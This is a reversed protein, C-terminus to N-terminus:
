EKERDIVDVGKVCRFGALNDTYLNPAGGTERSTVRLRYRQSYWSGGRVVKFQKGYRRYETGLRSRNGEYPMYWSQTWERANGAMNLAGYPSAGEPDFAIVPMLGRTAIGFRIKLHAGTKDDAWFDACNAREAGFDRGWPYLYNKAEGNGGARGPGRAAKEWEKETPLRKGAWRAYAEAEYYTVMVPLGGEGERYRGGEWSRPPKTNSGRVFKLFDENSVECVDIYYDDLHDTQEPSEDRDGSSSGFFFKGEPVLVMQRGDKDSVIARRYGRERVPAEDSYERDSRKRLAVLAIDVGARIQRVFQRNALTYRAVARYKYRGDRSFVLSEIDVSGYVTKEQIMYYTTEAPRETFLIVIGNEKTVSEVRGMIDFEAAAFLDCLVYLVAMSLSLVLYKSKGKTM